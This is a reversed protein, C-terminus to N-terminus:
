RRARGTPWGEPRRARWGHGGEPGVQVLLAARGRLLAKLQMTAEYLLNGGDGGDASDLLLVATAGADVAAEVATTRADLETSKVAVMLVPLEVEARKAGAFGGQPNCV